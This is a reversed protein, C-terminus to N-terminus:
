GVRRPVRQWPAGLLIVVSECQRATRMRPLDQYISCSQCSRAIMVMEADELSRIETVLPFVDRARGSRLGGLVKTITVYRRGPLSTSVYDIVVAMATRMPAEILEDVKVLPRSLVQPM